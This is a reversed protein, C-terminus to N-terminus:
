LAAFLRGAEPYGGQTYRPQRLWRHNDLGLGSPVQLLFRSGTGLCFLAISSHLNHAYVM